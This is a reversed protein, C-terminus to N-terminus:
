AVCTENADTVEVGVNFKIGKILEPTGVLFRRKM